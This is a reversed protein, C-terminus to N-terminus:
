RLIGNGVKRGWWKGLGWTDGAYTAAVVMLAVAEVWHSDTIPNTAREQYFPLQALYMFLLLLSGSWAAIKLGAGALLAVGIGLLGLMFLWDSWPGAINAFFQGFPNDGEAGGKMFGQAPTGGNLWSRESPTAFGLGFLKDVFAWIFTWGMVLRLVALFRRAWASRVIEEQFTVIGDAPHKTDVDHVRSVENHHITAM